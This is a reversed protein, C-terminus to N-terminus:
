SKYRVFFSLWTQEVERKVQKREYSQEVIFHHRSLATTFEDIHYYSFFRNTTQDIAEGEGGKLSIFGCANNKLVKTLSRLARDIRNKPIHLFVAAAWFVDFTCQSFPLEYLSAELFRAQPNRQQAQHLLTPSIDIGTYDYLSCLTEAEVGAGSGIELLKGSPQMTHLTRMEEAWFSVKNQPSHTAVWTNGQENYYTVTNQEQDTLHHNKM